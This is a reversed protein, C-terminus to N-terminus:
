HEQFNCVLLDIWGDGNLDAANAGWAGITQLAVRNGTKFGEAGGYYLFSDIMRDSFRRKDTFSFMHNTFFADNHDDKNFDAVLVDKAYTTEFEIQRAARFRVEESLYAFSRRGEENAFLM